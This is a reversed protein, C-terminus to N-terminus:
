VSDDVLASVNDITTTLVTLYKETSVHVKVTVTSRMLGVEAAPHFSEEVAFLCPTLICVVDETHLGFERDVQEGRATGRPLQNM